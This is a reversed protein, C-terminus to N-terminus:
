TRMKETFSFHWPHVILGFAYSVHTLPQQDAGVRDQFQRFCCFPASPPDTVPRYPQCAPVPVSPSGSLAPVSSSRSFFEVVCCGRVESPPHTVTRKLANIGHCVDIVIQRRSQGLHPGCFVCWAWYRRKQRAIFNLWAWRFLAVPFEPVAITASKEPPCESYLVHTHNISKVFGNEHVRMMTMLLDAYSYLVEATVVYPSSPRVHPALFTLFGSPTTAPAVPFPPPPTPPPNTLLLHRTSPFQAPGQSTCIHCTGDHTRPKRLKKRM